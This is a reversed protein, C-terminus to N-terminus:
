LEAHTPTLLHWNMVPQKATKMRLKTTIIRQETNTDVLSSMPASVTNIVPVIQQLLFIHIKVNFICSTAAAKSKNEWSLFAESLTKVGHTNSINCAYWVTPPNWEM